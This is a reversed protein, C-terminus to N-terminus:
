VFILLHGDGRLVGWRGWGMSLVTLAGRKRVHSMFGKRIPESGEAGESRLWNELWGRCSFGYLSICNCM